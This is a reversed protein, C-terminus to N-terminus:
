QMFGTLNLVVMFVFCVAFIESMASAILPIETATAAASCSVAIALRLGTRQTSGM